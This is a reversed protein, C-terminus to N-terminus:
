VQAAPEAAVPPEGVPLVREQRRIVVIGAVIAAGGLLQIGEPLEGLLVWAVGVAFLVETLAIFSASRTGLRVIGGIGCIYAIVTSVGVLWAAPVWWGVTSGALAVDQASFAMPVLGVLGALGIVLAGVATGGAAMVIPPLDASQQESIVFFAGLCVAALLAWAVGVPDLTASGSLDLVLVLGILTLGAGMLTRVRPMTRTRLSVWALLLVPALFEIMLAVGVDLTRVASFFALQVLAMAVVGYLVITRVAARRPRWSGRLMIAAALLLVVAGGGLRFLVISGATWGAELLAKAMPGSAGFAAAAGLAM